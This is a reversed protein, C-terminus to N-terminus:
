DSIAIWLGCHCSGSIGASVQDRFEKCRCKTDKNKFLKCPCYGNNGKIKKRVEAAYDEDPNQIIKMM